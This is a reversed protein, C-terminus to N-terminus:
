HLDHINMKEIQERRRMRARVVCYVAVLLLTPINFLLLAVAMSGLTQWLSGMYLMNGVVLLLSLLLWIVPLVLGPWRHASSSLFAELVILVVMVLVFLVLSLIISGSTSAM